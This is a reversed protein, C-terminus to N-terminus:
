NGILKRRAEQLAGIFEEFDLEWIGRLGDTQQYIELKLTKTEHSIEALQREGLWIEAVLNERDPVSAINVELKM